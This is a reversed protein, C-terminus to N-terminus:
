LLAAAMIASPLFYAGVAVLLSFIVRIPCVLWPHFRACMPAQVAWMAGIQRLVEGGIVRLERLIVRFRRVFAALVVGTFM